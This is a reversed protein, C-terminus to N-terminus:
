ENAGTEFFWGAPVALRGLDRQRVLFVVGAVGDEVDHDYEAFWLGQGGDVPKGVRLRRRDVTFEFVGPELGMSARETGAGDAFGAVELDEVQRLFDRVRLREQIVRGGPQTATSEEGAGGKGMVWGGGEREMVWAGKPHRLAIRSAVGYGPWRLRDALVRRGEWGEVVSHLIDNVLVREGPTPAVVALGAGARGLLGLSVSEAETGKPEFSVSGFPVNQYRYGTPPSKLRNTADVVPELAPGSVAFWAPETQWWGSEDRRYAWRETTGGTVREITIGELGDFDIPEELLSEPEVASLTAGDDTRESEPDMGLSWIAMAGAVLAAMFM